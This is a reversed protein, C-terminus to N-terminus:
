AAKGHHAKHASRCVTVLDDMHECGVREYTLHHVQLPDGPTMSKGTWQCRYKDRRLIKTRLELWQDSQLYEAYREHWSIGPNDSVPVVASLEEQLKDAVPRARDVVDMKERAFSGGDQTDQTFVGFEILREYPIARSLRGTVLCQVKFTFPAHGMRVVPPPTKTAIVLKPGVRDLLNGYMLDYLPQMLGIIEHYKAQHSPHRWRLSFYGRLYEHWSLHDPKAV